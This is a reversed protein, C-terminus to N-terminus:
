PTNQSVANLFTHQNVADGWPLLNNAATGGAAAPLAMVNVAGDWSSADFEDTSGDQEWGFIERLEDITVAGPTLFGKADGMDSRAQAVSLATILGTIDRRMSQVWDSKDQPVAM